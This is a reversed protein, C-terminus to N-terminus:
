WFASLGVSCLMRAGMDDTRFEGPVAVLSGHGSVYGVSGCHSVCFAPHEGIEGLTAGVVVRSLCGLGAESPVRRSSLLSFPLSSGHSRRQYDKDHGEGHWAFLVESAPHNPSTAPAHGGLGAARSGAEQAARRGPGADM